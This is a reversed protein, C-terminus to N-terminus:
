ASSVCMEDNKFKIKRTRIVSAWDRRSQFCGGACNCGRFFQLDKMNIKEEYILEAHILHVYLLDAALLSGRSSSPDCSACYDYAAKNSNDKLNIINNFLCTSRILVSGRICRLYFIQLTFRYHWKKTPTCQSARFKNWTIQKIPPAAPMLFKMPLSAGAHHRQARVCSILFLSLEAPWCRAM